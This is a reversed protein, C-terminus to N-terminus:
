QQQQQQQQQQQSTKPSWGAVDLINDSCLNTVTAKKCFLLTVFHQTHVNQHKTWFTIQEFKSLFWAFISCAREKNCVHRHAQFNNQGQTNLSITIIIVIYNINNNFPGWHLTFILTRNLPLMDGLDTMQMRVTFMMKNGDKEKNQRDPQYLNATGPTPPKKQAKNSTFLRNM